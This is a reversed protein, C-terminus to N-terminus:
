FAIEGADVKQNFIELQSLQIKGTSLLELYKVNRHLIEDYLIGKSKATESSKDDLIADFRALKEDLSDGPVVAATKGDIEVYTLFLTNFLIQKNFAITEASNAYLIELKQELADIVSQAAEFQKSLKEIEEKQEDTRDEFKVDKFEQFKERVENITEAARNIEGAEDDSLVGNNNKYEKDIIARTLIKRRVADSWTEQYINRAAEIEKRSPEKIIIKVKKDVDELKSLESGDEQQTTVKEQTKLILQYNFIEKM